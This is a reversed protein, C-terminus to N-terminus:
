LGLLRRARDQLARYSAEWQGDRPTISALQRALSGLAAGEARLRDAEALAQEYDYAYVFQVKRDQCIGICTQPAEVKGCGICQWANVIEAM